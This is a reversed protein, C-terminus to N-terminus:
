SVQGSQDKLFVFALEQWRKSCASAAVSAYRQGELADFQAHV